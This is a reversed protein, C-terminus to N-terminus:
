TQPSDDPTDEEVTLDRIVELTRDIDLPKSLYADVGSELCRERDGPMALATVAVTPVTQWVPHQKLERVLQFGDVGPLQIDLLILDPLTTPTVLPSHIIELMAQGDHVVETVFGELELVESILAQNYPQDEIVLARKANASLMKQPETLVAPLATDIPDVPISESLQSETELLPLWVRFTSGEGETSEVSVTGSHLEALRKTLALGLGTGEHQRSLSADIQQFPQFLLPWKERAIGIGSDQVALCLYPKDLTIPSRDPRFEQVLQHGYALRGVLKIQGGEPTFKIANSLLNILIQTVRREDLQIQKFRYDVELSLSLQKRDARPQVMRLCQTCLDQIAVPHLELEVKGAEIKSLDLIDNILDLLHQGSRAIAQVHAQQRENLDGSKQRMLLDSFGLVSNLPTRLEHSMSALFESKMQSARELTRNARQLREQSLAREIAAGLIRCAALLMDQQPAEQLKQLSRSELTLVGIITGDAAPIPFLGLQGIGPHRFEDVAQPHSAYDEIFCPQGSEVVQWLVGQGYPIGQNLLVEMEQIVPKGYTALFQGSIENTLVGARRGNGEGSIVKVDGFAAGKAQVLYHLAFQGIDKVNDTVQLRDTLGLLFRLRQVESNLSTQIDAAQKLAQQHPTVDQFSLLKGGDPMPSISVNLCRGDAQQISFQINESQENQLIGQLHQRQEALWQGREALLAVFETVQPTQQLWGRPLDWLDALKQNFLILRHLADFRAIANDVRDLILMQEEHLQRLAQELQNLNSATM